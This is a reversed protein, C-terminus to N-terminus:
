ERGYLGVGKQEAGLIGVNNKGAFQIHFARLVGSKTTQAFRGDSCCCCADEPLQGGHVVFFTWRLTDM